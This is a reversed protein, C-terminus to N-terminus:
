RRASRSASTTRTRVPASAQDLAAAFRTGIAHADKGDVNCSLVAFEDGGLRALLDTPRAARRFREAVIQLVEDGVAHGYADNVRKFGNLDM